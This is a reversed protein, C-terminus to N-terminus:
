EVPILWIVKPPLSDGRADSVVAGLTRDKNWAVDHVGGPSVEATDSFDCLAEGDFGILSGGFPRDIGLMFGQAARALSRLQTNPEAQVVRFDAGGDPRYYGRANARSRVGNLDVRFERDAVVMVAREGFAIRSFLDFVMDDRAEERWQGAEFWFISSGKLAAMRDPTAAELYTVGSKLWPRSVPTTSSPVLEFADGDIEYGIVVGDSRTTLRHRGSRIPAVSAGDLDVAYLFSGTSAFAISGSGPYAAGLVAGSSATGVLVADGGRRVRYLEATGGKPNPPDYAGAIIVEDDAIFAVARLFMGELGSPAQVDLQFQDCFGRRRCAPDRFRLDPAQEPPAESFQLSSDDDGVSDSVWYRVPRGLSEGPGDLVVGCREVDPGKQEVPAYLQAHLAYRRDRSLPQEFRAGPELLWVERTGGQDDIAAVVVRQDAPWPATAYVSADCAGVLLGLLGACARGASQM